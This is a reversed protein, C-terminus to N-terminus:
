PSNSPQHAHQDDAMARKAIDNEAKGGEGGDAGAM